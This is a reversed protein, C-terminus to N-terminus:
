FRISFGATGKLGYSGEFSTQGLAEGHITYKGGAWEQTGGLGLDGGFDGPEFEVDEL